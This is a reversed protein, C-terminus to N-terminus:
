SREHVTVISLVASVGGIFDGGKDGPIEGSFNRNVGTDGHHGSDVVEEISFVEGTYGRQADIWTVTPVHVGAKRELELAGTALRMIRFVGWGGRARAEAHTLPTAPNNKSTPM